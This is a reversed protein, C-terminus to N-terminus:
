NFINWNCLFNSFERKDDVWLGMFFAETGAGYCEHLGKDTLILKLNLQDGDFHYDRLRALLEDKPIVACDTKHTKPTQSNIFSFVLIDAESLIFKYKGIGYIDFDVPPYDKPLVPESAVIQVLKGNCELLGNDSAIFKLDTPFHLRQATIRKFYDKNM